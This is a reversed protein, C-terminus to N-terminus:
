IISAPENVEKQQYYSRRCSDHVLFKMAKGNTKMEVMNWAHEKDIPKGCLPCHHKQRNWVSLLTRKGNLSQLMKYTKRKDFYENWELDFPNAESRIKVFNTIKTDYLKKLRIKDNPSNKDLEAMFCWNRNKIKHFYKNSIWYKSKKSHRRLAWQWLKKFILYDAKRFTESSSSYKYYNTWGVIVPNLLRILSEQKSSKNSDIIGRIKEMFKKLGKKSPKTLFKGKYKRFNFGLFDFGEDIHTIMTKEESLTLGRVQLFERVIPLVENELMEKNRGTIIFDDAYRVLNV